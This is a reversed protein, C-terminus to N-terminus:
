IKMDPIFVKVAATERLLIESFELIRSLELNYQEKRSLYRFFKNM